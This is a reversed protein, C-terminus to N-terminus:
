FPLPQRALILAAACTLVILSRLGDVPDLRALRAAPAALAIARNMIRVM